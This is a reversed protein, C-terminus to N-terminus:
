QRAERFVKLFKAMRASQIASGDRRIRDLWEDRTTMTQVPPMDAPDQYQEDEDMDLGLHVDDEEDAIERQRIKVLIAPHTAEQMGKVVYTLATKNNDRRKGKCATRYKEAWYDARIQEGASLEFHCDEIEMGPLVLVNDPRIITFSLLFKILRNIKARNPELKSDINGFTRMFTGIGDFPHGYLMRVLGHVDTWRNDLMTGTLMITFRRFLSYCAQHTTKGAHKIYQAEDIVLGFGTGSKKHTESFLSCLPRPVKGKGKIFKQLNAYQRAVAEFNTLVIDYNYLDM